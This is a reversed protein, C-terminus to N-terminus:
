GIRKKEDNRCAKNSIARSFCGLTIKKSSISASMDTRLTRVMLNANVAHKVRLKNKETHM